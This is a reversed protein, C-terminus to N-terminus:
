EGNNRAVLLTFDSDIEGCDILRQEEAFLRRLITKGEETESLNGAINDLVLHLLTGGFDRREVIEFQKELESIIDASRIAETPDYGNMFELTPREITQKVGPERIMQRYSEPIEELLRQCHQLQVDTWQFQNPGVFENIIFYGGPKLCRRVQSMYHELAEIHHVSQSAFVADFSNETFELKNLNAVQYNISALQGSKEAEERALALADESVDFGEFREAIQLQLGHRELGGGGCGLSLALPVPSSYYKSAVYELWGVNAQGSILPCIYEQNVVPCEAWSNPKNLAAQERAREGWHKGATELGADTETAKSSSLLNKLSTLLSM